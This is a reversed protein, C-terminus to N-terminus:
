YGRRKRETDLKKELRRFVQNSISDVQGRINENVMEIVNNQINRVV